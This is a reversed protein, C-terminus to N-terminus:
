EATPRFEIQIDREFVSPDAPSPLPSANNVAAVISRQVAADGNCRGISVDVVTGGPLQKINVICEIGVTATAPQSWRSMVRQRIRFAYAAKADAQMAQLRSSEADLEEQRATAAEAQLRERERENEQRQREIEAERAVEAAVRKREIDADAARKREAAAEARRRDELQQEIRNLREQEIRADEQRRLEEARLRDQESTDPVPDPEPPIVIANDTVLTGTIALPIVPRARDGLDLVVVLSGFVLVHLLLALTVPIVNRSDRIV